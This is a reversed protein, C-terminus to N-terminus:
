VCSGDSCRHPFEASCGVDFEETLFRFRGSTDTQNNDPLTTNNDNFEIVKGNAYDMPLCM